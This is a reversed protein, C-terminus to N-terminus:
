SHLIIIMNEWGTPSMRKKHKDNSSQLSVTEAGANRHSKGNDLHVHVRYRRFNKWWQASVGQISM